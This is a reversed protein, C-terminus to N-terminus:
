AAHKGFGCLHGRVEQVCSSAGMLSGKGLIRSRADFESIYDLVVPALVRAIEVGQGSSSHSVLTPGEGLLPVAFLKRLSRCALETVASKVVSGAM